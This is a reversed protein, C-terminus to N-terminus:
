SDRRPRPRGEGRRPERSRGDSGATLRPEQMEVARGCGVGVFLSRPEAVQVLLSRDRVVVRGSSRVMERFKGALAVPSETRTSVADREPIPRLKGRFVPM